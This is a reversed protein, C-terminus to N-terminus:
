GWVSGCALATDVCLRFLSDTIIIVVRDFVCRGAKWIRMVGTGGAPKGYLLWRARGTIQDAVEEEVAVAKAKEEARKTYNEDNEWGCRTGPGHEGGISTTM